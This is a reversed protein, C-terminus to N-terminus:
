GQWMDRVIGSGCQKCMNFDGAELPHMCAICMIHGTLPHRFQNAAVGGKMGCCSSESPTPQECATPEHKRKKSAQSASEDDDDPLPKNLGLRKLYGKDQHVNLLECLVKGERYALEFPSDKRLIRLIDKLQKRLALIKPRAQEFLQKTEESQKTPVRIEHGPTTCGCEWADEGRSTLYNPCHYKGNPLACTRTGDNNDENAQPCDQISSPSAAAAAASSM